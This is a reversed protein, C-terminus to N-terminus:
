AIEAPDVVTVGARTWDKDRTLFVDCRELLGTAVHIADPTKLGLLRLDIAHEIIAEDITRVEMSTSPALLVRYAAELHIDGKKRAGVVTELLTLESTVAVLGRSDLLDLFGSKLGPFEHLSEVSYIAVSADLYARKGQLSIM